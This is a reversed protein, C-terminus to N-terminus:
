AIARSALFDMQWGPKIGHNRVLTALQAYHRIGHLLAHLIIKRRSVYMKGASLTVFELQEDWDVSTDALQARFRNLALEHLAFLDEIPGPVIQEYPTVPEGVLRESYRLEVAAIHRVLSHVTGASYIDCPLEVAQPHETLLAKWSQATEDNWQLLETASLSPVPM